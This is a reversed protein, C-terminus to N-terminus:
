RGSKAKRAITLLEEGLAERPPADCFMLNRELAGVRQAITALDEATWRKLMAAVSEKEKWFVARGLSAMVGDIQEGREIRARAPALFLLRRQLTRITPIAESGSSPLRALAEALPELEGLLALDALHLFDGEGTETGVADVAEHGLERPSNPSANIFLALKELEKSVIAQDCGCSDAIREAVPLSIKLGFRRGLDSVMRTAEAGEPMYATFALANPSAEALKLLASSKTLAGAIAVVPSEVADAALLAEVGEIVDNGVPEIWLLRREGFLSLAAAEDVLLGPNSKVAAMSVISKQAGLAELLRGALARSQAEDQGLFLYFRIKSDPQDVSRGISSKSAKV